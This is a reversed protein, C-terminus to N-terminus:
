RTCQRRKPELLGARKLTHLRTHSRHWCGKERIGMYRHICKTHWQMSDPGSFAPLTIKKRPNWSIENGHTRAADEHTPFLGVRRVFTSILAYRSDRWAEDLFRYPLQVRFSSLSLFPAGRVCIWRSIAFVFHFVNMFLKLISDIHTSGKEPSCLM